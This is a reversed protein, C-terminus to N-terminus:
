IGLQECAMQYAVTWLYVRPNIRRGCRWLWEWSDSVIENIMDHLTESPYFNNDHICNEIEEVVESWWENEEDTHSEITIHEPEAFEGAEHIIDAIDEAIDDVDYEYLDTSCQIKKIYYDVDYIYRKVDAPYLHNYWMAVSEGLDGSVVFMGRQKDIIFNVYYEGSGNKNRFDIVCIRDNDVAIEAKHDKFHSKMHEMTEINKM